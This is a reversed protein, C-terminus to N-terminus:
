LKAGQPLKTIDLATVRYRTTAVGDITETGVEKVTGAAELRGLAQTPNQSMLSMPDNLGQSKALQQFDVKLWTKGAPLKTGFLPSSMYATTGALIETIKMPQGLLGTSM